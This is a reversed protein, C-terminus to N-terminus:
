IEHQITGLGDNVATKMREGASTLAVSRIARVLLRLGLRAELRRITESLASPSVNLRAVARTVNLEEAVVLVSELDDFQGVMIFGQKLLSESIHPNDRM